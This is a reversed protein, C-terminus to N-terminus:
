HLETGELTREGRAGTEEIKEDRWMHRVKNEWEQDWKRLYNILLFCDM